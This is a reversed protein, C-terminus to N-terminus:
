NTIFGSDDTDDDKGYAWMELEQYSMSDLKTLFQTISHGNKVSENALELISDSAMNQKALIQKTRPDNFIMAIDEKSLNTFTKTIEELAKDKNTQVEINHKKQGTVTSYEKNLFKNVRGYLSQKESTTMKSIDTRFKVGGRQRTGFIDKKYNYSDRVINQYAKENTKGSKEMQVLRQNARKVLTALAQEFLTM